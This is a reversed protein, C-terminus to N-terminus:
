RHEIRAKCQALDAGRRSPDQSEVDRMIPKAAQEGFFSLVLQPALLEPTNM